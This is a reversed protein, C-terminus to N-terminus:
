NKIKIGANTKMNDNKRRLGQGWKVCEDTCTNM